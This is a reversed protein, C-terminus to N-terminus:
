KEDGEANIRILAFTTNDLVVTQSLVKVQAMLKDAMVPLKVESKLIHSILSQPLAKYLGDTTLLLIDGDMLELPANTLDFVPLGGVGLYSILAEGRESEREFEATSIEGMQLQENLRLAYNHDRTAQVLEGGRFIYLRSDGASFWYLQSRDLFAAVATTGGKRKGLERSVREDLELMMDLLFEPCKKQTGRGLYAQLLERGSNVAIQSALAGNETGGMGDCVLAFAMESGMYVYASDQQDSRGGLETCLQVEYRGNEGCKEVSINDM